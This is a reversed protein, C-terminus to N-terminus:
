YNLKGLLMFYGLLSDMSKGKGLSLLYLKQCTFGLIDQMTKERQRRDKRADGKPIPPLLTNMKRKRRKTKTTTQQGYRWSQTFSVSLQGSLPPFHKM